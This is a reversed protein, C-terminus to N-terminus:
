HSYGRLKRRKTLFLNSMAKASAVKKALLRWRPSDGKKDIEMKLKFQRCLPVRCSDGDCIYSHLRLLQWMQKCRNCGGNVRKTCTAFHHILLQLGQCTSFKECPKKNKIPQKDYPGVTTCGETCIHELCDMAESLESYLSQEKRNKRRRKNRLDVDDLFQLIDLELWPDHDHLFSWGETLEVAKFEKSVIRMCKIYLDPADCLRALKLVDVVNDVTLRTAIAKICIKKLQSVSYVHSLVLLHIGYKEMEEDSCKSSYIYRVFTIVAESSVGLIPIIKGSNQYKRPQYVLKELVRSASALISSHVPISLGGSTVVRADSVPPEGSNKYVGTYHPRLRYLDDSSPSVIM